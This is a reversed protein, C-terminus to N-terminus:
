FGVSFFQQGSWEGPANGVSRTVQQTHRQRITIWIIRFVPNFDKVEFDRRKDFRGNEHSVTAPFLLLPPLPCELRVVCRAVFLGSTM